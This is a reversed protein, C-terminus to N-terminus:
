TVHLHRHLYVVPTFNQRACALKAQDVKCPLEHSRSFLYSKMLTM